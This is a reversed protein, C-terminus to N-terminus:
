ADADQGKPTYCGNFDLGRDQLLEVLRVADRRDPYSIGMRWRYVTSRDRELRAVVQRRVELDALLERLLTM